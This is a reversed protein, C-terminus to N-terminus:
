IKDELRQLVVQPKQKTHIGYGSSGRDIIREVIRGGTGVAPIFKGMTAISIMIFEGTAM